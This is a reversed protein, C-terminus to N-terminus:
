QIYGILLEDKPFAIEGEKVLWQNDQARQAPTPGRSVERKWILTDRAHRKDNNLNHKPLWKISTNPPAERNNGPSLRM